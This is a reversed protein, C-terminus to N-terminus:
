GGRPAPAAPADSEPISQRAIDELIMARRLFAAGQRPADGGLLEFRVAIELAQRVLAVDGRARARRLVATLLLEAIADRQSPSLQKAAQTWASEPGSRDLLPLLAAAAGTPEAPVRAPPIVGNSLATACLFGM